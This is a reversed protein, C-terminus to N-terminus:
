KSRISSCTRIMLEVDGAWHTLSPKSAISAAGGGAGFDKKKAKLNLTNLKGGIFLFIDRTTSRNHTRAPVTSTPQPSLEVFVGVGVGVFAAGEVL